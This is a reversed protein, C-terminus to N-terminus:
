RDPQLSEPLGFHRHLGPDLFGAIEVIRGDRLGLLNLAGLRFQDHGYEGQYCAFAPQANAHIPVLRWPTEFLRERLFRGIDERGLFWAPLPPMTFRSDEALLALLADV